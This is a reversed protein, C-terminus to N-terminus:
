MEVKMSLFMSHLLLISIASSFRDDAHLDLKAASGRPGAARRSGHVKENHPQWSM